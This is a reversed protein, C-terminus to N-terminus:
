HSPVLVALPTCPGALEDHPLYDVPTMMKEPFYLCAILLDKQIKLWNLCGSHSAFAEWTVLHKM